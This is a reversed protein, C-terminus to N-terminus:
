QSIFGSYSGTDQLLAESVFMDEFNNSQKQKLLM